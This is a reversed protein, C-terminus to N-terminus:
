QKARKKNFADIANQFKAAPMDALKEIRFAKLFLDRDSNTTVIWDEIQLVQEETITKVPALTSADDDEDGVVINLAACLAYRKAYSLAAGYKQTDNVNMSPIPVELTHPESHTGVRLTCTAILGKDTAATSFTVVIRNEDLLPKVQKMVDEYGAFQYSYSGKSSNITAKRKKGIVPCKSQFNALAEAYVAAAVNREHREHLDMLKTLDDTNIGKDIAQQLLALPTVTANTTALATTMCSGKDFLAPVADRSERWLDPM